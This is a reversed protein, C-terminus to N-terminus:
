VETKVLKLAEKAIQQAADPKALLQWAASMKRCQKEDEILREIESKLQTEWPGKEEISIAAGADEAMKANYFQHNGAAFPYPILIAPKQTLALEAITLAGARCVVIDAAAYAEAMNSIYPVIKLRPDAIIVRESVTQYQSEGTQWLVQMNYKEIVKPVITIMANNISKAGQSGGFVLLTKHEKSFGWNQLAQLRDYGLLEKRVPNGTVVLKDQLAEFHQQAAPFALCIKDAFKALLRTTVGPHADQEQILVPIRMKAAVVLIPGSVYGGTGIAVHPQYRRLIKWSKVLSAALKFPFLVNKLTFSRSFGSIWLLEMRINQQPVIRTEIGNKGGVYLFNNVGMIKLAEITALAPYVHGGTGGGAVLIKIQSNVM